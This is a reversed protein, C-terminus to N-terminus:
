FTKLYSILADLDTNSIEWRPMYYSLRDGNPEVGEKVAKKFSAEDFTEEEEGKNPKTLSDWRIDASVTGDPLTFGGKADVGHCHVCAVPRMMSFMHGFRGSTSRATLVNGDEDVGTLFIQEGNSSYSSKAFNTMMNRALNSDFNQGGMMPMWSTDPNLFRGAPSSVLSPYSVLYYGLIGGLGLIGVVLLLLGVYLVTRKM